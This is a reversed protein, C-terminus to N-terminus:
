LPVPSFLTSNGCDIVETAEPVVLRTEKDLTLIVYGKQMPPYGSRGGADGYEQPKCCCGSEIVKYAGYNHVAQRHTHGQVVVRANPFRTLIYDFLWLRAMTTPLKYSKQAHCVIGNLGILTAWSNLGQTYSIRSTDFLVEDGLAWFVGGAPHTKSVMKRGQAIVALTDPIGYLKSAQPTFKKWGSEARKEHNGSNLRVKAKPHIIQLFWALLDVGLNHEERMSIEPYHSPFPSAESMNLFDGNIIWHDTSPFNKVAHEIVSKDVSSSHWDSLVGIKEYKM